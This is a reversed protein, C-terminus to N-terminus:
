SHATESDTQLQSHFEIWTFVLGTILGAVVAADLVGRLPQSLQHFLWVLGVIMLTLLWSSLMRRRTAAFYSMAYLPALSLALAGSSRNLSLTRQVFRPSFQQKFGKVGESYIMLPIGILLIAWHTGSLPQQFAALAQPILRYLAFAILLSFGALSWLRVAAILVGASEDPQSPTM